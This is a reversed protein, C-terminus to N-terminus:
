VLEMVRYQMALDYSPFVPIKDLEPEIRAVCRREVAQGGADTWGATFLLTESSMGNGEPKVVETVSIDSADDLVGGLWAEIRRGLEAQDRTSTTLHDTPLEAAGGLKATATTSATDPEPEMGMADGRPTGPRHLGQVGPRSRTRTQQTTRAAAASRRASGIAAVRHSRLM